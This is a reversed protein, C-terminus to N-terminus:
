HAAGESCRSNRRTPCGTGLFPKSAGNRATAPEPEGETMPDDVLDVIWTNVLSADAVEPEDDRVSVSEEGLDLAVALRGREVGMMFEYKELDARREDYITM